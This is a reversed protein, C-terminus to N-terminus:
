PVHNVEEKSRKSQRVFAKLILQMSPFIHTHILPKMYQSHTNADVDEWPCYFPFHFRYSVASSLSVNQWGDILYQCEPVRGYHRLGSDCMNFMWSVRWPGWKSLNWSVQPWLVYDVWWIWKQMVYNWQTHTHTNKHKHKFSLCFSLCTSLFPTFKLYGAAKIRLM